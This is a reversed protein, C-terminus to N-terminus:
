EPGYRSLENFKYVYEHITRDGQQLNFFEDHLREVEQRPVFKEEFVEKFRAWTMDVELDGVTM